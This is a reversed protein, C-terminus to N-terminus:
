IKESLSTEPPSSLSWTAECRSRRRDSSDAQLADVNVVQAMGAVLERGMRARVGTGDSCGFGPYKWAIREVAATSEASGLRSILTHVAMLIQGTVAM